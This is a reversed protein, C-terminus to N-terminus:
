TEQVQYEHAVNTKRNVQLYLPSEKHYPQAILFYRSNVPIIGLRWFGGKGEQKTKEKERVCVLRVKTGYTTKPHTLLETCTLDSLVEYIIYKLVANIPSYLYCINKKPQPARNIWLPNLSNFLCLSRIILPQPAKQLHSVTWVAHSEEAGAQINMCCTNLLSIPLCKAARRDPHPPDASADILREEAAAM